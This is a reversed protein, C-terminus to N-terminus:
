GVTSQCRNSASTRMIRHRARGGLPILDHHYVAICAVRVRIMTREEIGRLLLVMSRGALETLHALNPVDRISIVIIIELKFIQTLPARALM